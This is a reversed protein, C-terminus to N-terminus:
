QTAQFLLFLSSVIGASRPKSFSIPLYCCAQFLYQYNRATKRRRKLATRSNLLRRLWWPWLRRWLGRSRLWWPWLGRSWLWWPWLGRSWLRWSWLRWSRLRSRLRSRMRWLICRAGPCTSAGTDPTRILRVSVPWVAPLVRIRMGLARVM